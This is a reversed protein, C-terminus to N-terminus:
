DDAESEDDDAWRMLDSVSDFRRVDEGAELKRIADQTEANPLTLRIPMGRERIIARYYINIAESPSFGLEHLYAEAQEKVEPEVRARVTASKPM